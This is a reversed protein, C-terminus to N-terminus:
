KKGLQEELRVIATDVGHYKELVFRISIYKIALRNLFQRNNFPRSVLLSTDATQFPFILGDRLMDGAELSVDMLKRSQYDLFGTHETVDLLVQKYNNIAGVLEDDHLKSFNGSNVLEDLAFTNANWIAYGMVHTTMEIPIEKLDENVGFTDLLNKIQEATLELSQIDEALKERNVVLEKRVNEKVEDLVLARKRADNWDNVQLAILIGVVVLVIEGVAYLMYNVFRNGPLLMKRFKRFVRIM